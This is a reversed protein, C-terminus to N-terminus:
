KAGVKKKGASVKRKVKAPVRAPTEEGVVTALGEGSKGREALV